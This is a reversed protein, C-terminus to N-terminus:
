KKFIWFYTHIKRLHRQKTNPNTIKNPKVLIAIDKAYFGYRIAWEYVFCHTM